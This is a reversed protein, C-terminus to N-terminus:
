YESALLMTWYKQKGDDDKIAFIKGIFNEDSKLTYTKKYEPFEQTHTINIGEQGKTIEFVQLYDHKEMSKAKEALDWLFMITEVKLETQIGRTIYKGEAGM